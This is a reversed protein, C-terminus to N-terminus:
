SSASVPECDPFWNPGWLWLRNMGFLTERIGVRELVGRVVEGLIGVRGFHPVSIVSYRM